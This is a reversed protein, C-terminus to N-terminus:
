TAKAGPGLCQASCTASRGDVLEREQEESEQTGPTGEPYGTKCGLLSFALYAHCQEAFTPSPQVKRRVKRALGRIRLCPAGNSSLEEAAVQSEVKRLPRISDGGKGVKLNSLSWPHRLLKEFLAFFSVAIKPSWGAIKRPWDAIKRSGSIRLM